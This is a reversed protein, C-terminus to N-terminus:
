CGPVMYYQSHLTEICTVVTDREKRNYGKKEIVEKKSKNFSFDDQIIHALLLLNRTSTEAVANQLVEGRQVLGCLAKIKDDHRQVIATIEEPTRGETGLSATLIKDNILKLLDEKEAVNQKAKKKPNTAGEKGQAKQSSMTKTTPADTTSPKSDYSTRDFRITEKPVRSSRRLGTGLGVIDNEKTTEMVKQLPLLQLQWQRQRQQSLQETKATVQFIM